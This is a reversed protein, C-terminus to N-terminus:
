RIVTAKVDVLHDDSLELEVPTGPTLETLAIRSGSRDELTTSEEIKYTHGDVKITTRTVEEIRGPIPDAFAHSTALVLAAGALAVTLFRKTMSQM